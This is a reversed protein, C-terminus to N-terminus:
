QIFIGQIVKKKRNLEHMIKMQKDVESFSVFNVGNSDLGETLHHIVTDNQIFNLNIPSQKKM